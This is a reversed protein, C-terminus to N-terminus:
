KLVQKAEILGNFKRNKPWHEAGLLGWDSSTTLKQGMTKKIELLKNM